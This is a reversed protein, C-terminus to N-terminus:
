SGDKNHCKSCFYVPSVNNNCNYCEYDGEDDNHVLYLTMNAMCNTKQCIKCLIYKSNRDYKNPDQDDHFELWIKACKIPPVVRKPTQTSM